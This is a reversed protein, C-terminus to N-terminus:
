LSFPLFVATFIEKLCFIRVSSSLCGFPLYSSRYTTTVSLVATIFWASSVTCLPAAENSSCVPAYVVCLDDAFHRGALAPALCAYLLAHRRQCSPRAAARSRV